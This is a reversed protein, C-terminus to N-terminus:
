ANSSPCRQRAASLHLLLVPHLLRLVILLLCRALVLLLGNLALVLLM